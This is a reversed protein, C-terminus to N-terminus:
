SLSHYGSRKWKAVIGELDHACVAAFFSSGRGTVHDMYVLRSETRPMLARLRRKRELLPRARLDESDISLV